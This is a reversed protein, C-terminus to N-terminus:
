AVILKSCEERLAQGLDIRCWEQEPHLPRRDNKIWASSFETASEIEIGAFQPFGNRALRACAHRIFRESLRRNTFVYDAGFSVLKADPHPMWERIAPVTGTSGQTGESHAAVTSGDPLLWHDVHYKLDIMGDFGAGAREAAAIVDLITITHTM